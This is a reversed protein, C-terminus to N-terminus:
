WLYLFMAYRSSFFSLFCLNQNLLNGHKHVNLASLWTNRYMPYPNKRVRGGTQFL